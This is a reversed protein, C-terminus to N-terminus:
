FTFDLNVGVKSSASSATDVSAAVSAVLNQNVRTKYSADIKYDSSLRLGTTAGSELTKQLGVGLKVKVDSDNRWETEAYVVDKTSPVRYEFAGVAKKFEDSWTFYTSYNGSDVRAGLELNKYAATFDKKQVDLKTRGGFLINRYKGAGSLELQTEKQHVYKTDLTFGFQPKDYIVELGVGSNDTVTGEANAVRTRAVASFKLALDKNVKKSIDIEQVAGSKLTSNFRTSGNFLTESLKFSGSTKGSAKREANVSFQPTNVNVNVKTGNEDSDSIFSKTFSNYPSRISGYLVM